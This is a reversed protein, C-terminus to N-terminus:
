PTGWSTLPHARRRFATILVTGVIVAASAVATLADIPAGTLALHTPHHTAPTHGPQHQSTPPTVVVTVAVTNSGGAMGIAEVLV